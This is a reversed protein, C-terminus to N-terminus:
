RALSVSGVWDGGAQHFLEAAHYLTRGTTYVDDILLIKKHKFKAPTKLIFPQSAVLREQRNKSSQPAKKEIKTQLATLYPVERLLGVVQNFGRTQWTTTTIPIPVIYDTPIQRIYTSFECQFVKRLRYDGDFKYRRMYEKMMSNYRYIGHHHLYWGYRQKWYNCESCLLQGKEMGSRGCGRCRNVTQWHVFKNTCEPCTAQNLIESPWFIDRITLRVSITKNCLLCKM